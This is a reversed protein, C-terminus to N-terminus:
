KNLVNKALWELGLKKSGVDTFDIDAIDGDIGTVIGEGFTPHNIVDAVKLATAANTVIDDAKNPTVAAVTQAVPAAKKFLDSILTDDTVDGSPLAVPAPTPAINEVIPNKNIDYKTLNLKSGLIRDAMEEITSWDGNALGAGMGVPMAINTGEPYKNAINTFAQELAKYNTYVKNPDHGIESQGFINLYTRNPNSASHLPLTKGLLSAGQQKSLNVYRAYEEPSLDAKIQKALGAGMTGLTNVQQLVLPADTDLVSGAVTDPRVGGNARTFIDELIATERDRVEQAMKSGRNGAVNLTKVKNQQMWDWLEDATQPNDLFPKGAISAGKRTALLGAGEEPGRFYVTGDADAANQRTRNVYASRLTGPYGLVNMGFHSRDIGDDYEVLLDGEPGKSITGGTPIGFRQAIQLGLIDAGTQGGSIVKNLLSSPKLSQNALQEIPAQTTGVGDRIDMLIKGLNNSGRGTNADVGWFTDGWTNDESIYENSLAQLQKMLDPNNNFKSSVANRMADVRANNWASRDIPVQRGLRKATLGDLGVFKSAWEPNKQAQFAAEANDFTYDNGGINMPIKAPFMNSLFYYMDRFKM